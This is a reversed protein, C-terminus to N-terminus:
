ANQSCISCIVPRSDDEIENAEMVEWPFWDCSDPADAPIWEWLGNSVEIADGVQLKERTLRLKQLYEQWHIPKISNM